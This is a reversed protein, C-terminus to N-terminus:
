ARAKRRLCGALLLGAGLLLMSGPEPTAAGSTGMIQFTESDTGPEINNAVNGISNEWAVSPGDNIDWYLPNGSDVVANQLELWYTGAGLALDPIAFSDQFVDYGFGGVSPVNNILNATGSGGPVAPGLPDTTIAWDVTLPTDGPYAWLALNVGTITSDGSLDFSDAVAFGFNITWASVTGDVPGNDYLVGASAPAAALLLALALVLLWTTHMRM